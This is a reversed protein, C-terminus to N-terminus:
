DSGTQLTSRLPVQIVLSAGGRARTFPQATATYPSQLSHVLSLDAGVYSVRRKDVHRVLGDITMSRLPASWSAGPDPDGFAVLSVSHAALLKKLVVLLRYDVMGTTLEHKINPGEKLRRNRALSRGLRASAQQAQHAAQLFAAATGSAAVLVDVREQGSGFRAVVEPASTALSHGSQRRLVPTSLVFAAAGPVGAGRNFVVESAAPVGTEILYGCMSPDCGLQASPDVQTQVWASAAQENAVTRLQAATPGAPKPPKPSTAAPHSTSAAITIAAAGALVVVVAALVSWRVAGIRVGDPVRLVRRRWWLRLTTAAVRVLSPETPRPRGAAPDRGSQEGDPRAPADLWPGGSSSIDRAVQLEWAM